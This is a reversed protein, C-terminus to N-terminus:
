VDALDDARERRVAEFVAAFRRLDALFGLQQPGELVLQGGVPDLQGPGLDRPVSWHASSASSASRIMSLSRLKRLSGDFAAAGRLRRPPPMPSNFPRVMGNTVGIDAGPTGVSASANRDASASPPAWPRINNPLLPSPGSSGTEASPQNADHAVVLHRSSVPPGTSHLTVAAPVASTSIRTAATAGARGSASTSLGGM